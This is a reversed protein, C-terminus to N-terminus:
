ILGKDKLLWEPATVTVEADVEYDKPDVEIQSKPLWYWKLRDGRETVEITGDAVAIAKETISCVKVAVDALQKSM